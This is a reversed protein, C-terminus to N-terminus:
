SNTRQAMEWLYAGLMTGDFSVFHCLVRESPVVLPALQLRLRHTFAGKRELESGLLCRVSNVLISNFREHGRSLASSSRSPSLALVRSRSLERRASGGLTPAHLVGRTRSEV